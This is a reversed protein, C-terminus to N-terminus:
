RVGGGSGGGSFGGGGGFSSSGGGGSSRSSVASVVDRSGLYTAATLSPVLHENTLNRTIESMELFEPNLQKMDKMVQKGIGFLTAYVLYDNWLAVESLHRENALTFDNLFKRLGFVQKVPDIDRKCEKLSMNPETTKLFEMVEDEHRKMWRRLELPQLIRDDGAALCFIDYLKRLPTSKLLRNNPNFDGVVICDQTKGEGGMIKKLGTPAIYHREIRLTGTRILRLVMASLLNERNGDSFTNYAQLMSNARFLNGDLPIDRYWDVESELKKRARRVSLGHLLAWMSIVFVGLAALLSEFNEKVFTWASKGTGQEYDSGKFAEERVEEFAKSVTQVPHLIGKELEMMVIMSSEPTMPESTTAVVTGEVKDISGHYGFSWIRISDHPFGYELEPATITVTAKQPSPNINRAVFMFNFGDTGEYSRVLRTVTYRITYLREGSDGLGWCLEYGDSKTVIGCRGAKQQRSRDIDWAGENVYTRGQEDSVSFDRIESGNLHGIVIYSETGEHDISMQRLETIDADGNDHLKVEISLNRLAPGATTMTVVALLPLLLSLRKSASHKM